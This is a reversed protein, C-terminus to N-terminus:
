RKQREDYVRGAEHGVVAGGITGLTGGGSLGYGVAAGGATGVAEARSACGSIGVSGALVVVAILARFM